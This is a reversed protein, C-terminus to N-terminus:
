KGWAQLEVIRSYGDGSAHTLVRIKSTQINPDLKFRNWVFSNPKAATITAIPIDTWGFKYHWYQVEFQTLGFKDKGFTTIGEYVSKPADVDDQFTFLDIESIVKEGGKFEVEL